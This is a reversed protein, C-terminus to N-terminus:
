RVAPPANQKGKNGLPGGGSLKPTLGCSVVGVKLAMIVLAMGTM